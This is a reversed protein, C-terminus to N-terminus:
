AGPASAAAAAAASAHAPRELARRLADFGRSVEDRTWRGGEALRDGVSRADAALAAISAKAEAGAWGAANEAARAGAKLAYGAERADHRAWADAAHARHSLALAHDAQEFSGVLARETPRTASGLGAALADLRTDARELLRRTDGSARAAELRLHAAAQRVQAAAARDDHKLYAELAAGFHRHPEDSLPYWASVDSLLWRRDLDARQAPGLTKDLEATSTVRGAEVGAAAGDLQRALAAMRAHVAKAAKLEAAARRHDQAAARDAQGALDRAAARLSEAAKTRDKAALASRAAALQRSLDDVVPTVSLDDYEIWDSPSRLALPAAAPASASADAPTAAATAAAASLGPPTLLAAATAAALLTPRLKM